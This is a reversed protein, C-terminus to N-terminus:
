YTNTLAKVAGGSGDILNGDCRLFALFAILGQEAFRQDLRHVRLGTRRITYSALDGFLVSTITVPPSSPEAQLTAMNPNVFVPYDLLLDVGAPNEYKSKFLRLPRGNKDKLKKIASLTSDHMWWGATDRNRYAPDVSELVNTLDDSSITNPGADSGDNVSSGAAQAGVQIANVLGLPMGSGTGISLDTNTVRGLRTGLRAAIYEGFPFGADQALELSVKVVRSTYHYSSLIVQNIGSIDIDTAQMNENIREGTIQADDDTPIALLRGNESDIVNSSRWVPGADRMASFVQGAFSVPVFFGSTAGPYAGQGGTAMDRTLLAREEASVGREFPNSSLGHRLFNTFALDRKRDAGSQISTEMGRMEDTLQNLQAREAPTLPGRKSCLTHVMRGVIERRAILTTEIM